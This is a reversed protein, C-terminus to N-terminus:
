TKKTIRALSRTIQHPNKTKIVSGIDGGLSKRYTVTVRELGKGGNIEFERSRKKFCQLKFQLV